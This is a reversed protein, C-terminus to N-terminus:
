AMSEFYKMATKKMINLKKFSKNITYTDSIKLDDSCKVPMEDAGRPLVDLLRNSWPSRSTTCLRKLYVGDM